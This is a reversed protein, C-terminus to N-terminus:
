PKRFILVLNSALGGLRVRRLEIAGSAGADRAMARLQRASLLNLNAESAFFGNGTATLCARFLRPPM